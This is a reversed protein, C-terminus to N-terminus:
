LNTIFYFNKWQVKSTFVSFTTTRMSCIQLRVLMLHLCFQSLHGSLPSGIRSYETHTRGNIHCRQLREYKAYPASPFQCFVQESEQYFSDKSDDNNDKNPTHANLVSLRKASNSVM